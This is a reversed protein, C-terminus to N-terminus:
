TEGKQDLRHKEKLKQKGMVENDEPACTFCDCCFLRHFAIAISPLNEKGQSRLFKLNLKKSTGGM